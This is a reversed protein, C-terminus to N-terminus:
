ELDEESIGSDYGDSESEWLEEANFGSREGLTAKWKQLPRVGPRLPLL